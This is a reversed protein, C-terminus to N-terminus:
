EIVEALGLLPLPIALGLSKAIKANIVLELKTVQQVPLDEPKEGRLVRGVLDGLQRNAEKGDSGYSILGGAAVYGRGPYMVPIKYHAALDTILKGNGAGFVPHDNVLIAGAGEGEAKAFIKELEEVHSASFLLLNLPQPSPWEIDAEPDVVSRVARLGSKRKVGSLLSLASM